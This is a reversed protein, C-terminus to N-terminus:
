APPSSQPTSGRVPELEYIQSGDHWVLGTAAVPVEYVVQRGGDANIITKHMHRNGSSDGLWFQGEPVEREDGHFHLVLLTMGSGATLTRDESGVGSTTLYLVQYQVSRKREVDVLFGQSTRGVEFRAKKMGTTIANFGKVADAHNGGAFVAQAKKLEGVATALAQERAELYAANKLGKPAMAMAAKTDDIALQAETQAAEAEVKGKARAEETAAEAKAKAMIALEKAKDYNRSLRSKDNQGSVEDKAAQLAESASQLAERAFMEAGAMKAVHLAQEADALEQRPPSACSALAAVCSVLAMVITMKRM